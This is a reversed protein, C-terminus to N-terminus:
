DVQVGAAKWVKIRTTIEDRVLKDFAETPSFKAAAGQTAIQDRVDPLELIRGIEAALQNIIPRPTKGPALIGYWGQYEFTPLGAEGITPVESLGPARQATSVGLAVVRKSKILASAAIVPSFFFDIRGAMMDTFVEPSGRYPVHVAKIGATLNFLEAGYHPGSGIGSSGFTLQKPKRQAIEIFEKVTRAGAGTSVVLVLPTTAIQAVGTFDKIPDYPLKGHYLAASGAFNSGTTTLTHGDPAAEAVIKFAVVGGASPRNDMVIQRGWREVMKPAIIRAIIDTASSPTFPIIMRISRNPYGTDSTQALATGGGYSMVSLAALLSALRTM